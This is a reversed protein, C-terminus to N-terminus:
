QRVNRRLSSLYASAGSLFVFSPACLHTVWRAFFLLPTTTSLNVPNHVMADTHMLDRTHDLAMIIMVMGRAIDISSIRKMVLHVIGDGAPCPIHTPSCLFEIFRRKRDVTSMRNGLGGGCSRNISGRSPFSRGGSM